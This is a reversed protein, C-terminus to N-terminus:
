KFKQIKRIRKPNEKRLKDFKIEYTKHDKKSSLKGLKVSHKNEKLEKYFENVKKQLRKAMNGILMNIHEEPYQSIDIKKDEVYCNFLVEIDIEDCFYEPGHIDYVIKRVYNSMSNVFFMGIENHNGKKDYELYKLIQAKCYERTNYLSKDQYEM